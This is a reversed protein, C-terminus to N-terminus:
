AAYHHPQSRAWAAVVPLAHHRPPTPSLAEAETLMAVAVTM